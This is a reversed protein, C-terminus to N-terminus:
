LPPPLIKEQCVGINLILHLLLFEQPTQGLHAGESTHYTSFLIRGCVYPASITMLNPAYLDPNKQEVWVKHGINIAKGEKDKQLIEKVSKVASWNDEFHVEPLKAFDKKGAAPAMVEEPIAKLWAILDPDKIIGTTAYIPLKPSENALHMSQYQPFPDSLFKSGRDTVFWKGGAKVYEQINKIIKPDLANELDPQEPKSEVKLLEAGCPIFIIHYKKMAEVDSLLAMAKDGTDIVHIAGSGKVWQGTKDVDGLGFKALLDQIRDNEGEFIAIKPIWQGKEPEWQKPLTTWAKPAELAGAILDVQSSRRFQGKRVVFKQASGSRAPLSFSGDAKTMTWLTGSPLEVCSECYAIEEITSLKGSTTYVLAKDIPLLGNPGFVRGSITLDPKAPEGTTPNPDPDSFSSNNPATDTKSTKGQNGEDESSSSSDQEGKKDNQDPSPRKKACGFPLLLAM